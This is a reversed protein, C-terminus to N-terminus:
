HVTSSAAFGLTTLWDDVPQGTLCQHASTGKRPGWRRTKLNYYARFLELFGQTCGKHIYLYPRLAANFGEIASSARHRKDLRLKVAELLDDTQSPILTRLQAFAALLQRRHQTHQWPSRAAQLEGVLRWIMCALVVAQAPYMAYLQALRLNLDATALSLGPARNQLYRALKRCSADDIAAIAQAAQEFMRRVEEGCRLQGRELDVCELAEQAQRLAAEFADYREMAQQCRRQAWAIKHRLRRRRRRQKAPIRQLQAHLEEECSIAKYASQELRRRVKNMEYLVHFCDDRQEALPFVEKVGAAIGLAADKVVVSLGLGQQKGQHLVQAWDEASRSARLSLAFLYGSDLDVGSLVPDGQSFMEDLAGNDVGSLDTQRNFLSANREAQALIGQVKGYSLRVGPYLLPILEEIPRIANPAMVRLAVVARQLQAEDVSVSALCHASGSPEFHNRLVEQASAGAAYVSPRSIGYFQSLQTKAGHEGQQALVSAACEVKQSTTLSTRHLGTM